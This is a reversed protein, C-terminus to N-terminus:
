FPAVEFSVRRTVSNKRDQVAVTYDIAAAHSDDDFIHRISGREAWWNERPVARPWGDYIPRRIRWWREVEFRLCAVIEM